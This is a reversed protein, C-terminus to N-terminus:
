ILNILLMSVMYYVMYAIIPAFINVNGKRTYEEDTVIVGKSDLTKIKNVCHCKYFWDGFM